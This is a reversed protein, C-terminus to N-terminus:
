VHLNGNNRLEEVVQEDAHRFPQTPSGTSQLSHLYRLSRGRQRPVARHMLFLPIIAVTQLSPTRGINRSLVTSKLKRRVTDTSYRAAAQALAGCM